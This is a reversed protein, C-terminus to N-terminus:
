ERFPRPSDRSSAEQSLRLQKGRAGGGGVGELASGASDEPYWFKRRQRAKMSWTPKKGYFEEFKPEGRHWATQFKSLGTVGSLFSGM